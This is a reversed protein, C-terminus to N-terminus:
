RAVVDDVVLPLADDKAWEWMSGDYNRADIGEARLVETVLAARVGGTCYVVLPRDRPVGAKQMARTLADGRLVRGEDDFVSIWEFHRAGPVHGGRAELYPTAGDFEARTRVDVVVVRPDTLARVLDSKTARADMRAALTFRGASSSLAPGRAYAGGAERFRACGGDLIAVDAHGLARLTWAIRGEEGFGRPGLGCVVVPREDDVGLEAFRQALGALDDPLRGGILLGDRTMEWEVRVAGSPHGAITEKLPRADLITLPGAAKRAVVEAADVIPHSWRAARAEAPAGHAPAADVLSLSVWACCAVAFARTCRRAGTPVAGGSSAPTEFRSLPAIADLADDPRSRLGREVRTVARMVFHTAGRGLLFRGRAVTMVSRAPGNRAVGRGAWSAM